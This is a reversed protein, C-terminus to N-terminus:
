PKLTRKNFRPHALVTELIEQDLSPKPRTADLVLTSDAIHSHAVIDLYQLRLDELAHLDPDAEVSTRSKLRHAAGEASIDLYFTLDPIPWEMLDHITRVIDRGRPGLHPAQYVLSSEFYRDCIVTVSTQLTPKILTEVHEARDALFLMLQTKIHITPRDPGILLDRIIKGFAGEGPERTWIAPYGLTHLSALLRESRETKGAGDIGAFTIFM